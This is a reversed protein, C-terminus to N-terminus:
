TAREPRSLLATPSWALAVRKTRHINPFCVFCVFCVFIWGFSSFVSVSLYYRIAFFFFFTLWVQSPFTLWLRWSLSLFAILVCRLNTQEFADWTEKIEKTELPEDTIIRKCKWRYTWSLHERSIRKRTSVCNELRCIVMRCTSQETTLKSYPWHSTSSWCPQIVLM